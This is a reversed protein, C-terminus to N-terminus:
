ITNTYSGPYCVKRTSVFVHRIISNGLAKIAKRGPLKQQEPKGQGFPATYICLQLLYISNRIDKQLRKLFIDQSHLRKFGLRRQRVCFPLVCTFTGKSKFQKDDNHAISFCNTTGLPGAKIVAFKPLCSLTDCHLQLITLM